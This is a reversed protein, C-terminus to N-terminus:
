GPAGNDFVTALGATLWDLGPPAPVDVERISLLEALAVSDGSLHMSGEPASGGHIRVVDDGAVVVIRDPPDTTEIVMARADRDGRSLAFARGLGAAYRLSCRIEDDETAPDQGLPLLIDREHIWADWLAHDAVLRIPLHGPPAEALVDWGDAGVADLADAMADVGESFQRLTESVSTGRAQEVLQAPSAVPDFSALFRTPNGALGAQISIAWFTNTSTLHTVVDQVTWGTCRSPRQWDAADLDQLRAELRRRQRMVPHTGEDRVEISLVTPGDYRPTLQM